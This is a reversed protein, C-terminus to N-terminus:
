GNMETQKARQNARHDFLSRLLFTFRRNLPNILDIRLLQQRLVFVIELQMRRFNTFSAYFRPGPQHDATILRAAQLEKQAITFLHVEFLDSSCVDSSWD